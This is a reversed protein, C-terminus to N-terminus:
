RTPPVTGCEPCRDPTARLDCGCNECLGAAKRRQRVNLWQWPACYFSLALCFLVPEWYPTNWEYFSYFPLIDYRGQESRVQWGFDSEEEGLPSIRFDSTVNGSWPSRYSQVWLAAIALAFVFSLTSLANM